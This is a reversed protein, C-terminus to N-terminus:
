KCYQQYQNNATALQQQREADDLLHQKGGNQVVVPGSGNLAALNTKLSACLKTRNEPTDAVPLSSAAPEAPKAASEAPAPATPAALPEASGSPTIQKYRTGQPPPTESYHVTGSADTWKYVQAAALPAVLLLVVALLPRRM